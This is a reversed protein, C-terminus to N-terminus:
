FDLLFADTEEKTMDQFSRFVFGRASSEDQRLHFKYRLAWSTLRGATGLSIMHNQVLWRVLLEPSNGELCTGDFDFVALRVIDKAEQGDSTMVHVDDM